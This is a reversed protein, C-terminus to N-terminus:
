NNVHQTYKALYQLVYFAVRWSHLHRQPLQLWPQHDFQCQKKCRQNATHILTFPERYNFKFEQHKHNFILKSNLLQCQLTTQLRKTPVTMPNAMLFNMLTTSGQQRHETQTTSDHLILDQFVKSQKQIAQSCCNSLLMHLTFM